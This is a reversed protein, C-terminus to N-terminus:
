KEGQLNAWLFLYRPDWMTDTETFGARCSTYLLAVWSPVRIMRSGFGQKLLRRTFITGNQSSRRSHLVLPVRLLNHLRSIPDRLLLQPAVPQYIVRFSYDRFYHSHCVLIARM